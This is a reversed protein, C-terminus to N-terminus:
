GTEKHSAKNNDEWRRRTRGLLTKEEPKEVSYKRANRAHGAWRMKEKVLANLL